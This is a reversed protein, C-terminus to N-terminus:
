ARLVVLVQIVTIRCLFFWQNWQRCGSDEWLGEGLEYKQHLFFVLCSEEMSGADPGSAQLGTTTSKLSPCSEARACQSQQESIIRRQVVMKKKRSGACWMWSRVSWKCSCWKFSDTTNLYFFTNVEGTVAKQKWDSDPLSSSILRVLFLSFLINNDYTKLRPNNKLHPLTLM